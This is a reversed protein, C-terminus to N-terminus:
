RIHSVGGSRWPLSSPITPCRHNWIVEDPLPKGGLHIGGASDLMGVCGSREFIEEGPSTFGFGEASVASSFSRRSFARRACSTTPSFCSVSSRLFYARRKKLRDQAQIKVIM